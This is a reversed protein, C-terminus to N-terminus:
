FYCEIFINTVTVCLAVFTGWVFLVLILLIFSSLKMWNRASKFKEHKKTTEMAITAMKFIGFTTQMSMTSLMGTFNPYWNAVDYDVQFGFKEWIPPNNKKQPWKPNLIEVMAVSITAIHHLM